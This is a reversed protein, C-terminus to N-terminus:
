TENEGPGTTLLSQQRKWREIADPDFRIKRGLRFHPIARRLVMRYITDDSVQLHDGLSRVTYCATSM